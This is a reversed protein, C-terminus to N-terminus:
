DQEATTSNNGCCSVLINVTPAGPMSMAAGRTTDAAAELAEDSVEFILIDDDSQELSMITDSMDDIWERTLAAGNLSPADYGVSRLL